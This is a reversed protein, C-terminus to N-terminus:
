DGCHSKFGVVVLQWNRYFASVNVNADNLDDKLCKWSHQKSLCMYKLSKRVRVLRNKHRVRVLVYWFLRIVVCFLFQLYLFMFNRSSEKEQHNISKIFYMKALLPKM